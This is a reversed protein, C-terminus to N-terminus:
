RTTRLPAITIGSCKNMSILRFISRSSQMYTGKLSRKVLSWFNEIGNTHVQGRVYEQSHNVVKHIFNKSLGDYAMAEDTFVRSFPTVNDLIMGQLTERKLNPLVQTRVQRYERDLIGQVATKGVFGAKQEDRAQIKAKRAKHMKQPNPGIFVEDSEVPGGFGFKHNFTPKLALRIRHVMHWASKQTIGLTRHVEWSSVGNKCNAVMWMAMLWKDLGLASDEFITGSRSPFNRSRTARRASGFAVPLFMHRTMADAHRASQRATRGAAIRSTPLATIRM